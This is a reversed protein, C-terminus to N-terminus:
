LMLDHRKLNEIGGLNLKREFIHCQELPQLIGALKQGLGSRKALPIDLLQRHERLLQFFGAAAHVNIKLPEATTIRQVYCETSEERRARRTHFSISQTMPDDPSQAMPGVVQNPREIARH